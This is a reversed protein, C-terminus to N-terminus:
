TKMGNAECDRMVREAGQVLAGFAAMMSHQPNRTAAVKERV